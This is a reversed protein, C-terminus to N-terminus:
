CTNTNTGFYAVTEYLTKNAEAHLSDSVLEIKIQFKEEGRTRNAATEDEHLELTKM